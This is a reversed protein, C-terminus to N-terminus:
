LSNETCFLLFKWTVLKIVIVVEKKESQMKM